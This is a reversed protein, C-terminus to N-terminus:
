VKSECRCRSITSCFFQHAWNLYTFGGLVCLFRRYNDEPVMKSSSSNSLPFSLITLSFSKEARQLNRSLFLLPFWPASQLPHAGQPPPDVIHTSSSKVKNRVHCIHQQSDLRIVFTTSGTCNSDLSLNQYFDFITPQTDRHISKLALHSTIWDHQGDQVM